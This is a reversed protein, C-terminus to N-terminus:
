FYPVFYFSPSDGLFTEVTQEPRTSRQAVLWTFSTDGFTLTRTDQGPAGIVGEKKRPRNNEGSRLAWVPLPFILGLFGLFSFLTRIKPTIKGREEWARGTPSGGPRDLTSLPLIVLCIGFAQGKPQGRCLIGLFSASFFWSM